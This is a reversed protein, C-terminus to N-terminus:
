AEIVDCRDGVVGRHAEAAAASDYDTRGPQWPVTPGGMAEIAAIGALAKHEILMPPVSRPSIIYEVPRRPFDLSQRDSHPAPLLYRSPSRRQGPRNVVM